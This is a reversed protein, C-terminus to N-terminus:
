KNISDDSIIDQLSDPIKYNLCISYNSDEKKFRNHGNLVLESTISVFSSWFGDNSMLYFMKLSQLRDKLGEENVVYKWNQESVISRVSEIFQSFSKKDSSVRNKMDNFREFLDNEKDNFVFELGRSQALRVSEGIQHVKIADMPSIFAPVRSMDLTTKQNDDRIFFHNESKNSLFGFMIWSWIDSYLSDSSEYLIKACKEIQTFGSLSSENLIDLTSAFSDVKENFQSVIQDLFDFTQGFKLFRNFKIVSYNPNRHIDIEVEILENRYDILLKDVSQALRRNYPNSDSSYKQIFHNVGIYHNAMVLLRNILNIEPVGISGNMLCDSSELAKRRTDVLDGNIGELVYLIELVLCRKDGFISRNDHHGAMNHGNMANVALSM